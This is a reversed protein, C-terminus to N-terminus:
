FSTFSLVGKFLKCIFWLVLATSSIPVPDDSCPVIHHCCGASSVRAVARPPSNILLTKRNSAKHKLFTSNQISFTTKKIQVFPKQMIDTDCTAHKITKLAGITWILFICLVTINLASLFHM